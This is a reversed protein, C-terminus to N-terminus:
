TLSPSANGLHLSILAQLVVDGLHKFGTSFFTKLCWVDKIGKYLHLYHISDRIFYM